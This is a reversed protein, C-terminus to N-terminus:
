RAGPLMRLCPTLLKMKKAMMSLEGRKTRGPRGQVGVIDGRKVLNAIKGFDEENGYEKLNLM